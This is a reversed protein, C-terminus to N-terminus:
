SRRKVFLVEKGENFFFLSNYVVVENCPQLKETCSYLEGSYVLAEINPRNQFSANKSKYPNHSSRESPRQVSQLHTIETVRTIM